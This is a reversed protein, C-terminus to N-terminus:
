ELKCEPIETWAYVDNFCYDYTTNLDDYYNWKKHRASYPVVSYRTIVGVITDQRFTVLYDGSKGPLIDEAKNWKSM